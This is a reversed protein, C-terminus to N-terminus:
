GHRMWDVFDFGGDSAIFQADFDGIGLVPPRPVSLEPQCVHFLQEQLHPIV